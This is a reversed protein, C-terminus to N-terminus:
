PAFRYGTGIELYAFVPLVAEAQPAAHYATMVGMVGDGIITVQRGPV